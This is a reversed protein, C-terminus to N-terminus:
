TSVQTAVNQSKFLSHMWIKIIQILTWQGYIIIYTEIKFYFFILVMLNCLWAHNM